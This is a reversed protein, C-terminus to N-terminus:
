TQSTSTKATTVDTDDYTQIDNVDCIDRTNTYSATALTDADDVCVFDVHRRWDASTTVRSACGVDAVFCSTTTLTDRRHRTDDPHTATWVFVM